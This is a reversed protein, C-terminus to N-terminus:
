GAEEKWGRIEKILAKETAKCQEAVGYVVEYHYSLIKSLFVPIVGAASMKGVQQMLTTSPAMPVGNQACAQRFNKMYQPVQRVRHRYRADSAVEGAFVRRFMLGLMGVALLSIAVVGFKGVGGFGGGEPLAATGEDSFDDIEEPDSIDDPLELGGAEKPMLEDENSPPTPDFSVWGYKDLKVEIWAHADRTYFVFMNRVPFYKGGAWGIVMRCPIGLERALVAAASAFHLCFGKREYFLFNELGNRGMRNEITLSYKCRQALERKIAILKEGVTERGKYHQALEKVSERLSGSFSNNGYYEPAEGITVNPDNRLINELMLPKSVANYKYNGRESKPPLMYRTATVQKLKPVEVTYGGNMRLMLRQKKHHYVTYDISPVNLDALEPRLVISGDDDAVLNNFMLERAEWKSGNFGDLTYATVYLRRRLMAASLEKNVPEIYVEAHNPPRRKGRKPLELTMNSDDSWGEAYSDDGGGVQNDTNRKKGDIGGRGEGEEYGGSGNVATVEIVKQAVSPGILLLSSLLCLLVGVAGSAVLIDGRSPARLSLFVGKKKRWEVGWCFLGFLAVLGAVLYKWVGLGYGGQVLLYVLVLSLILLLSRM